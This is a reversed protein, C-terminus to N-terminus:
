NYVGAVFIDHTRRGIINDDIRDFLSATFLVHVCTEVFFLLQGGAPGCWCVSVGVIACM